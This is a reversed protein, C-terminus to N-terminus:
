KIFDLKLFLNELVLNLGTSRELSLNADAIAQLVDELPYMEGRQLAQEMEEEFDRHMLYNRNGKVFLLEMDRYWGLIVEFLTQAEHHLRMSIAGEIEKQLSEKQATPLDEISGKYLEKRVEEEIQKKALEVKECIAELSETLQKYQSFKGKALIELVMERSKDSGEGLLRIAQGLSGQSLFAIRKAEDEGLKYVTKLHHAIEEEQLSHFYLVRCRSLITPILAAPKSSLLIIVSMPSPEEFTKLLANSSTPLMREADHIIFVKWPGQFPALYVQESFQRMSQISHMGMKGEPRYIHLDPHHKSGLLAEAFETAFLGKGIGEPGAFLLSNAIAKKALMHSLSKKIPDNGLITEFM